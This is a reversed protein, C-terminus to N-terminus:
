YRIKGQAVKQLHQGYPSKSYKEAAEMLQGKTIWGKNYAIEEIASITIGQRQSLTQVFQGAHVLSDM